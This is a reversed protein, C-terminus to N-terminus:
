DVPMSPLSHTLQYGIQGVRAVCSASLVLNVDNLRQISEFAYAALPLLQLSRRFRMRQALGILVAFQSRGTRNGFTSANGDRHHVVIGTQLRDPRKRNM